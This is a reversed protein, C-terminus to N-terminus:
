EQSHYGNVNKLLIDKISLDDQKERFQSIEIVKKEIIDLSLTEIFAVVM